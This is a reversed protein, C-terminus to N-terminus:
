QKFEHPIKVEAKAKPYRTHIFDVIKDTMDDVGGNIREVSIELTKRGKNGFSNRPMYEWELNIFKAVYQGEYIISDGKVEFKKMEDKSLIFNGTSCAALAAIACIFLITKMM